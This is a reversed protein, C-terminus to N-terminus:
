LKEIVSKVNRKFYLSGLIYSMVAFGLLYTFSRISAPQHSNIILRMDRIVLAVPNVFVLRQFRVPVLAIPYIIPTLYFLLNLFLEWINKVDRYKAHLVSLVLGFAYSIMILIILYMPILLWWVTVEAPSFIWFAFFVVLSLLLNIVANIVPAAVIVSRTFNAKLILSSRDILSTTSYSTAESFFQFILLGLLLNLRYNPDHNGFIYGFVLYLIAFTMLPKLLAWIFGLVSNRYRLRFDSRVFEYLLDRYNKSRKIKLM